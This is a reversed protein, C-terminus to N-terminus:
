VRGVKPVGLKAAAAIEHDDPRFHNTWERRFRAFVGTPLTAGEEQHRKTVYTATLNNDSQVDEIAQIRSLVKPHSELAEGFWDSLNWWFGRGGKSDVEVPTASTNNWDHGKTIAALAAKLPDGYGAETAIADADFERQRSILAFGFTIVVAAIIAILEFKEKDSDHNSKTAQLEISGTHKSAATKYQHGIELQYRIVEIAKEIINLLINSVVVWFIDFHNIHGCEHAIVAELGSEWHAGMEAKLTNILGRYVFIAAHQPSRGTAFANVVNSEVLFVELETHGKADAVLANPSIQDYVQKNIVRQTAAYIIRADEERNDQTAAVRTGNKFGGVMAKVIERSFYYTLCSVALLPLSISILMEATLLTAIYVSLAVITLFTAWFRYQPLLSAKPHLIADWIQAGTAQLSTLSLSM